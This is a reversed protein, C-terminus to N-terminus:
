PGPSVIRFGTDIYHKEATKSARNASRLGAASADYAGGRVVRADGRGEGVPDTASDGKYEGYVDLCWEQANGLMDFLGLPNASKKKVPHLRYESNISYWAYDSLGKKDGGFFYMDASGARCAYEWQAETPLTFTRGARASLRACFDQAETWSVWIVPKDPGKFDTSTAKGMVALWQAQTVETEGMWFDQSLTIQRQPGEDKERDKEGAPSGMLFSGARVLVLELTLGEQFDLIMRDGSAAM